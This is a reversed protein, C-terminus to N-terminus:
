RPSGTSDIAARKRKSRSRPRCYGSPVTSSDAPPPSHPRTEQRRSQQPQRDQDGTAPVAARFSPRKHLHPLFLDDGGVKALVAVAQRLAVPRGRSLFPNALQQLGQDIALDHHPLGLPEAIVLVGFEAGPAVPQRGLAEDLLHLVVLEAATELDGLLLDAPDVLLMVPVPLDQRRVDDASRLFLRPLDYPEEVFSPIKVLERALPGQGRVGTVPAKEIM